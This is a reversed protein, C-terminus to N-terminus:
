VSESAGPNKSTLHGCQDRNARCERKVGGEEVGGRGM